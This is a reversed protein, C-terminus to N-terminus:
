LGTVELDPDGGAWLILTRAAERWERYWVCLWGQNYLFDRWEIQEATLVGTKSKLEVVLGAYAGPQCGLIEARNRFPAWIDWVGSRQGMRMARITEARDKRENAPHFCWRLDPVRPTVGPIPRGFEDLGALRNLLDFLAIQDTSESM